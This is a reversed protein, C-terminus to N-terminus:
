FPQRTPDFTKYARSVRTAYLQLTPVRPLLTNVTCLTDACDLAGSCPLKFSQFLQNHATQTYRQLPSSSIPSLTTITGLHLKDNKGRAADLKRSEVKGIILRRSINDIHHHHALLCDRYSM